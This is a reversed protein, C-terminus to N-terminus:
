ATKAERLLAIPFINSNHLFQLTLRSPVLVMDLICTIVSIQLTMMAFSRSSPFEVQLVHSSSSIEDERTALDYIWLRLM